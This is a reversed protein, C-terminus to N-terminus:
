RSVYNLNGLTFSLCNAQSITQAEGETIEVVDAPLSGLADKDAILLLLKTTVGDKYYLHDVAKDGIEIQYNTPYVMKRAVNDYPVTIVYFKM